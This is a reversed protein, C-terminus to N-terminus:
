TQALLGRLMYSTRRDYDCNDMSPLQRLQCLSLVVLIFIINGVLPPLFIPLLSSLSVFWFHYLQMATSAFFGTLLRWTLWCHIHLRRTIFNHLWPLSIILRHCVLCSTFFIFIGMLPSMILWGHLRPYWDTTVFALRRHLHLCTDFAIVFDVLWSSSSFLQHRCVCGVHHLHRHRHDLWYCHLLWHYHCLREDANAYYTLRSPSIILRRFCLWGNAVASIDPGIFCLHQHHHWHCYDMLNINYSNYISWKSSLQHQQGVRGFRFIELQQLLIDARFWLHLYHSRSNVRQNIFQNRWSSM